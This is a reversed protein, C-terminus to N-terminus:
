ASSVYFTGGTSVHATGPRGSAVVPFVYDDYYSVLDGDHVPAFTGHFLYWVAVLHPANQPQPLGNRFWSAGSESVPGVAIAQLNASLFFSWNVNSYPCNFRLTQVGAGIGYYNVGDSCKIVQYTAGPPDPVQNPTGVASLSVASGLQAELRAATTADVPEDFVITVTSHPFEVTISTRGSNRTTDTTLTLAAILSLSAVVARM